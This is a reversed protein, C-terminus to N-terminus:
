GAALSESGPRIADRQLSAIFDAAPVPHGIHFGQALDCGLETVTQLTEEDEVGEAVVRIGLHHGLDIMSQVLQMSRQERLMSRIFSQDIKLETAPFQRLYAFSSYGTGFDDIAVGMGEGHLEQLIRGSRHPDDMIAGETVELLVADAPVNWLRIAAIIQQAIDEEAFVLPSLNIAVKLDPSIRRADACLRLSANLSWRTFDGILGAQEALSVFLSPSVWGRTGSHWRALSEAGMVRQGRLDWLPQFWVDLVRSDIAERLEAMPIESHMRGPAYRSVSQGSRQAQASAIDACRLAAGPAEPEAGLQYLGIAVDSSLVLGEIRLEDRLARVLRNAALLAHNESALEPLVLAFCDDALRAVKDRPRVVSEVLLATAPGAREAVEYGYDIRFSHQQLVRVVLVAGPRGTCALQQARDIEALLEIRSLM